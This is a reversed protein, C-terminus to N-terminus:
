FNWAVGFLARYDNAGARHEPNFRVGLESSISLNETVEKNGYVALKYERKQPKLSASYQNRYVTDSYYDRGSAMDVRLKGHEVRLPSSLRLGFDTTKNLKYNADLAFSSSILASTHLMNSNFAAAQTYGQYYSGSLSLKSTAKYQATIGTFYTRSQPLGFAGSGTLGLLAEDEYLMGSVISMDLHKGAKFNLEGDVAYASKKFTRDNFDKDGGYLGNRGSVAQLKFGYKPNLQYGIHAGYASTFSMFPNSLDAHKNDRTKYRTNESLYFGNEIKGMKYSTDAFGFGNASNLAGQAYAFTLNGDRTEKIKTNPVIYAVDNKLAKYGAHTVSIYRSTNVEFPRKYKDFITFTSPLAALLADSMQPSVTLNTNSLNVYASDTTTGSLTAMSMTSGDASTPPIYYSTAKGLDLLGAGYITDAHNASDYGIGNTNATERLIEIIESSHLFPFASKLFAISGSVVATAQSTGLKADYKNTTSTKATPSWIGSSSTGGPAAICYAATSGCANSKTARKYSIIAGNSDYTVDASMVVLALLKSFDVSEDRGTHYDQVTKQGLNKVGALVGPEDFVENGAAMVWILDDKGSLKNKAYSDVTDKMAQIHPKLQSNTYTQEINAANVSDTAAFGFSINMAIAGSELAEDVPLYLPSIMDYRLAYIDTNAFSVGMMGSDNMNAAIIGSIHTGHEYDKQSILASTNLGAYPNPNNLIEEADRDYDQVYSDAWANMDAVSINTEIVLERGKENLFTRKLKGTNVSDDEIKWCNTTDDGRCPGYDFSKGSVKSVGNANLFEPHNVEVGTDLVAVINHNTSSDIKNGDADYGILVLSNQADYGYVHSYAEAANIAALFNTGKEKSTNYAGTSSYEKYKKGNSATFDQTTFFTIDAFPEAPTPEDPTTPETPTPEDPTTPEAPTPEDPTTPETPTPEDPTTPESEGTKNPTTSSKNDNQKSKDNNKQGDTSQQNKGSNSSSSTNSGGGGGGGGGGGAAAAVGGIAAAIGAGMLWYKGNGAKIVANQPMCPANKDAGYQLLIDAAKQNKNKYAMCLATTGNKDTIDISVGRKLATELYATDGSAVASYLSQATDSAYANISYTGLVSTLLLFYKKM